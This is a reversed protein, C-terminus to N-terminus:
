SDGEDSACVPWQKLEGTIQWRGEHFILQSLVPSQVRASRIWGVDRMPETTAWPAWDSYKLWYSAHWLDCGQFEAVPESKIWEVQQFEAQAFRLCPWFADDREPAYLYRRAKETFVYRPRGGRRDREEVFGSKRLVRLLSGDQADVEFPQAPDRDPSEMMLWVNLCGALEPKAALLREVAEGIEKKSPGSEQTDRCAVLLLPLVFVLSCFRRPRRSRDRGPPHAAPM